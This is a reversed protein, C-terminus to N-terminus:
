FLLEILKSQLYLAEAVIIPQHYHFGNARNNLAKAYEPDHNTIYTKFHNPLSEITKALKAKSGQYIDTKNEIFDFFLTSFRELNEAEHFTFRNM